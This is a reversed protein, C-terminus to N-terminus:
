GGAPVLGRAGRPADREQRREGLQLGAPVVQGADDADLLHLRDAGGLAAVVEAGRGPVLLFRLAHLEREGLEEALEAVLVVLAVAQLVLV